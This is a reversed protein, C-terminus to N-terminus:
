MKKTAQLLAWGDASMTVSFPEMAGGAFAALVREVQADGWIGSLLLTGGPAVRATLLASLEIVTCALINAVVMSYTAERASEEEPLEAIFRRGLGNAEANIRSVELAEVDIEVGVARAAGFQLAAFSLIGSGSGYDLVTCGRLSSPPNLLRRLALCCLQTTAHEGTGFAMGPHLTLQVDSASAHAGAAAAKLPETEDAVASQAAAVDADSHWPFRITLCGDLSIPPWSLAPLLRPVLLAHPGVCVKTCTGPITTAPKKSM